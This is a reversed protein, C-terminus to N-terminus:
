KDQAASYKTDFLNAEEFDLPTLGGAHWSTLKLTVMKYDVSILPHHNKNEAIEAVQNVFAIADRFTKFQYRRLIFKGDRKWEPVNALSELIQTDTLRDM